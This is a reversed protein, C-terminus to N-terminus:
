LIVPIAIINPGNKEKRHSEPWSVRFSIGLIQSYLGLETLLGIIKSVISAWGMFVM